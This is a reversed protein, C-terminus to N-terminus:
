INKNLKPLYFPELFQGQIAEYRDFCEECADYGAWEGTWAHPVCDGEYMPIGTKCGFLDKGCLICESERPWMEIVVVRPKDTIKM